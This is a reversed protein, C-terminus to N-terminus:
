HLSGVKLRADEAEQRAALLELESLYDQVIALDDPNTLSEVAARIRLATAHANNFDAMDHGKPLTRGPSSM